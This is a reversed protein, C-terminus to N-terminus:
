DPNSKRTTQKNNDFEGGGSALTLSRLTGFETLEPSTYRKKPSSASANLGLDKTRDERSM